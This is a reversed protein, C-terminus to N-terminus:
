DNDKSRYKNIQEDLQQKYYDEVSIKDYNELGNLKIQAINLKSPYCKENGYWGWYGGQKNKVYYLEEDSATYGYKMNMIIQISDKTEDLWYEFESSKDVGYSFIKGISRKLSEELINEHKKYWKGVCVPVIIPQLDFHVKVFEQWKKADKEAVCRQEFMLNSQSERIDCEHYADKLSQHLNEVREPSKWDGFFEIIKKDKRRRPKGFNDFFEKRFEGM